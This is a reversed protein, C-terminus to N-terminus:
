KNYLLYRFSVDSMRDKDKFRVFCEVTKDETEEVTVTLVSGHLHFYENETFYKTYIFPEIIEANEIEKLELKPIPLRFSEKGSGKYALEVLCTDADSLPGKTITIYLFILENLRNTYRCEVVGVTSESNENIKLAEIKNSNVFRFM